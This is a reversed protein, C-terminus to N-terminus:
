FSYNLQCIFAITAKFCKLQVESDGKCIKLRNDNSYQVTSTLVIVQITTTASLALKSILYFLVLNVM